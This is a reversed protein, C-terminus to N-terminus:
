VTLVFNVEAQTDDSSLIRHAESTVKTQRIASYTSKSTGIQCLRTLRHPVIRVLFVFFIVESYYSRRIDISKIRGDLSQGM